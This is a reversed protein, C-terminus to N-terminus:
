AGKWPECMGLGTSGRRRSSANRLSTIGRGTQAPAVIGTRDCPHRRFRPEDSVILFCSERVTEGFNRSHLPVSVPV